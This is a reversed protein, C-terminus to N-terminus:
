VLPITVPLEVAALEGMPGVPTVDGVLIEAGVGARTLDGNVVAGIVARGLHEADSILALGQAELTTRGVFRGSRTLSPQCRVLQVIYQMQLNATGPQVAARRNLIPQPPSLANLGTVSTQMAVTLQGAPDDWPVERPAGPAVYQAAPLAVTPNDPDDAHAAYYAVVVGLLASAVQAANAPGPGDLSM